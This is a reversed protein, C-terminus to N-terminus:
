VQSTTLLEAGLYATTSISEDPISKTEHVTLSSGDLKLKKNTKSHMVEAERSTCKSPELYVLTRKEFQQCCDDLLAHSPENPGTISIGGLRRRIEELRASREAFPIPKPTDTSPTEVASKLAATIVVEAEFHLRRLSAIEGMSPAVGNNLDRAWSEFTSEPFEQGPRAIAFALTALTAIGQAKLARVLANSVGYELARSSFHAESDSLSAM